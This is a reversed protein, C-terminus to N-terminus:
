QTWADRFGRGVWYMSWISVSVAVSLPAAILTELIM